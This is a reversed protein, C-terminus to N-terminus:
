SGDGYHAKLRAKNRRRTRLKKLLRWQVILTSMRDISEPTLLVYEYDWGSHRKMNFVYQIANWVRRWFPAPNLKITLSLEPDDPPSLADMEMRAIHAMHGCECDLYSQNYVPKNM